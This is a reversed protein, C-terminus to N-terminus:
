TTTYKKNNSMRAGPLRVKSCLSLAILLCWGPCFFSMQLTKNTFIHSFTCLDLMNNTKKIDFPLIFWYFFRQLNNPTCSCFFRSIYIKNEQKKNKSVCLTCVRKTCVTWTVAHLDRWTASNICIIVFGFWQWGFLHMRMSYMKWHSFCFFRVYRLNDQAVM